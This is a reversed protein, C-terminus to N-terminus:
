QHHSEIQDESLQLFRAANNYFIDRKEDDSLFDASEIAEIGMSITEPWIMQDSGFMLRKGLGADMLDRLYSYFARRPIIWTITSLDAYVNPYCYMLSIIEHILPYGANEIYLRLDPHKQLVESALMPRGKLIPFNEGGGIGACHVLVPVDYKVALEYIPDLSPDNMSYGQYQSTIEGLITLNGAKLEAEIRELDASMPEGIAPGLAFRSDYEKWKFLEDFNSETLIGMVVNHKKMENLTEPLLESIDKIRNEAGECPYPVCLVRDAWISEQAHLHMDIIPPNKEQAVLSYCANLMLLIASLRKM